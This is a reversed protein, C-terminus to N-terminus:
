INRNVERSYVIYKIKQTVNEKYIGRKRRCSRHHGSIRELFITEQLISIIIWIVTWVTFSVFCIKRMRNAGGYNNNKM